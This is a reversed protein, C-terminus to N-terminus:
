VDEGPRGALRTMCLYTWGDREGEFILEPIPVSLEHMPAKSLTARESLFQHELMPPFVKLVRQADLAVVLNSGNAFPTANTFSIRHARALEVVADLWLSPQKRFADFADFDMPPPLRADPM